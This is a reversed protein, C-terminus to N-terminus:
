ESPRIKCKKKVSVEICKLLRTKMRIGTKIRCSATQETTVPLGEVGRARLGLISSELGDLSVSQDNILEPAKSDFDTHEVMRTLLDDDPKTTKQSLRMMM